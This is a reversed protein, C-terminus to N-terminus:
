RLLTYFFHLTPFHLKCLFQRWSRLELSNIIMNLRWSSKTEHYWLRFRYPIVPPSFFEVNWLVIFAYGFNRLVIVFAYRKMKINPLIHHKNGISFRNSHWLELLFRNITTTSLKLSIWSIWKNIVKSMQKTERYIQCNWPIHIILKFGRKNIELM